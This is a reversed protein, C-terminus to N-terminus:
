EQITTAAIPLAAPAAQMMKKLADPSKFLDAWAPDITTKRLKIDELIMAAEKTTIKQGPKLYYQFRIENIRAHMEYPLSLYGYDDSVESGWKAREVKSLKDWNKPKPAKNLFDIKDIVGKKFLDRFEGVYVNDFHTSYIGHTGGEHVGLSAIQGPQMTRSKIPNIYNVPAVGTLPVEQLSHMSWGGYRHGPQTYDHTWQKYTPITTKHHGKALAINVQEQIGFDKLKQQTVPDIQWKATFDSASKLAADRQATSQWKKGKLLNHLLENAERGLSGVQEASSSVNAKINEGAEVFSRPLRNLLHPAYKTIGSLAAGGGSMALLENFNRPVATEGLWKTAGLLHKTVNNWLWDDELNERSFERPPKNFDFPKNPDLYPYQQLSEKPDTYVGGNDYITTPTIVPPVNTTDPEAISDKVLSSDQAGFITDLINKETPLNNINNSDALFPAMNQKLMLEEEKAKLEKISDQALMNKSFLDIHGEVDEEGSWHNEAWFDQISQEGSWLKSFNSVPHERHNGLFLIKQQDATLSSVDVSKSEKSGMSLDYLWKPLPLNNDKFYKVTRNVATNGGEKEGVEFMFLGRGPGDYFTGDEKQSIQKAKPDMRQKPGTEHFAIYDMLQHYQEPTGGKDRIILQLFENLDIENM